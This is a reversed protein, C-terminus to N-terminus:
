LEERERERETERKILFKLSTVCLVAMCKRAKLVKRQFRPPFRWSEMATMKCAHLVLM